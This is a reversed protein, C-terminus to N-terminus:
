SKYIPLTHMESVEGVFLILHKMIFMMLRKESDLTLLQIGIILKIHPYDEIKSLLYRHQLLVVVMNMEADKKQLM